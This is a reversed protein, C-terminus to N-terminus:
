RPPLPHRAGHRVHLVTVLRQRENIRYIVRYIDRGHGHLLHRLTSDEPATPCRGPNEDLSLIAVELTNFWTRAQGAEIAVIRLFLRDLDRDARRTLDVRYTM